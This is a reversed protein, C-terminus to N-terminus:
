DLALVANPCQPIGPALVLEDDPVSDRGHCLGRGDALVQYVLSSRARDNIVQINWALQNSFPAVTLVADRLVADPQKARIAAIAKILANPHVQRVAFPDSPHSAYEENGSTPKGGADYTTLTYEHPGNLATRVTFTTEAWKNIGVSSVKNAHKGALYAALAAKLATGSMSAQKQDGSPDPRSKCTNGGSNNALGYTCTNAGCGALAILAGLAVIAIPHRTARLM